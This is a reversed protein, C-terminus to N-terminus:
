CAHLIKTALWYFKVGRSMYHHAKGFCYTYLEYSNKEFVPIKLLKNLYSNVLSSCIFYEVICAHYRTKSAESPSQSAKLEGTM